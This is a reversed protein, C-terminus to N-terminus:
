DLGHETGKGQRAIVPPTEVLNIVTTPEFGCNGGDIILDVQHELKDRIDHADTEPMENDPMILTSSMIPQGLESLMAKVIPDGVVRIGIMRRKPHMLRRPVENTAKLLFTYPGPTLSKLLRYDANNVKAYTAIESLDSCVLTFHHKDDVQRIRRIKEMASKDGLHCGIAYSSDTPYVVVGGNDIIDVAQHILRQQPNDPHIEFFQSM